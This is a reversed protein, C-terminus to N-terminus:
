GGLLAKVMDSDPDALADIVDFHHKGEAVVQRAGWTRALAQSQELFAPREDGGVWVTVNVGHPPSMNVPSEAAAEEADIQLIDNMATRMLPALDALASIPVINQIRDRVEAPLILPDTMRSVLHGGASHGALSITGTTRGAIATVAAAIQRTIDSIRVEPCLEYSPMAVTWGRALAGAAFHSWTNKDFAKWYGGHVFIVTGRSVGEPHFLDFVHRPNDGYPVDLQARAGLAARFSRAEANWRPPFGDADAIHGSNDYADDLTMMQVKQMNIHVIM